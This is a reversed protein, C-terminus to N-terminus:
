FGIGGEKLAPIGKHSQALRCFAVKLGHAASFDIDWMMDFLNHREEIKVPFGFDELSHLMSYFVIGEAM